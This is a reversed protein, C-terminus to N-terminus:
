DNFGPPTTPQTLSPDASVWCNGVTNDPCIVRWWQGNGSMGTVKAVQGAAIHSMRAFELGPGVRMNVDALALVYQVDTPLVIVVDPAPKGSAPICLVQGVFIRNLDYIGNRAALTYVNVNFRRAIRLLTDGYTAIYKVQCGPPPPLPTGPDFQRACTPGSPMNVWPANPIALAQGIRLTGAPDIGNQAAIAWPQVGYARGICYLTEGSRVTHYGLLDIGSLPAASAANATAAISLALIALTLILRIILKMM